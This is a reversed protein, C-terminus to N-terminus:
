QLELEFTSDSQLTGLLSVTYKSKTTLYMEFSLAVTLNHNNKLQTTLIAIRPDFKLLLAEIQKLLHLKDDESNVGQNMDITPLGMDPAYIVSGWRTNLVKQLYNRISSALSVSAEYKTDIEIAGLSNLRESLRIM